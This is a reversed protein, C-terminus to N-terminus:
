RSGNSAKDHASPRHAASKHPFDEPVNLESRVFANWDQTASNAVVRHRDSAAYHADVFRNVCARYEDVLDVFHNWAIEDNKDARVPAVCDHEPDRDHAGVLGSYVAFLLGCTILLRRM